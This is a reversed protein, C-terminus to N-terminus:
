FICEDDWKSNEEFRTKVSRSQHNSRRGSSDPVESQLRHYTSSDPPADKEAQIQKLVYAILASLNPSRSDDSDRNWRTVLECPLKRIIMPELYRGTIQEPEGLSTLSRIHFTVENHLDRLGAVDSLSDVKRLQQLASFHEGIIVRERGYREHLQSTAFLYNDDTLELGRLIKAADGTVYQLLYRMKEVAYLETDEHIPQFSAWFSRWETVKGDFPRLKFDPATFARRRRPSCVESHHRQDHCRVANDDKSRNYRLEQLSIFNNAKTRYSVFRIKLEIHTEVLHEFLEDSDSPQLKLSLQHFDSWIAGLSNLAINMNTAKSPEEDDLIIGEDLSAFQREIFKGLLSLKKHADSPM